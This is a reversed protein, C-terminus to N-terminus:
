NNCDPSVGFLTSKEAVMLSGKVPTGLKNNETYTEEGNIFYVYNETEAVFGGNRVPAGPSTLTVNSKWAGGCAVASVVLAATVAAVAITKLLKKVM